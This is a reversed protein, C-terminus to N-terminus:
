IKPQWKRGPYKAHWAAHAGKGGHRGTETEYPCREGKIVKDCHWMENPGPENNIPLGPKNSLEVELLYTQGKRRIAFGRRLGSEVEPDIFMQELEHDELFTIRRAMDDGKKTAPCKV